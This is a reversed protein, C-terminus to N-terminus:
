LVTEKILTKSNLDFAYLHSNLSFFYALTNQSSSKGSEIFTMPDCDNKSKFICEIQANIKSSTSDINIMFVFHDIAFLATNRSIIKWAVSNGRVREEIEIPDSLLKLSSASRIELVNPESSYVM